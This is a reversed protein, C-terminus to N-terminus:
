QRQGQQCPQCTHRCHPKISSKVLSPIVEILSNLFYIYFFSCEAVGFCMGEASPILQQQQQQQGSELGKDSRDLFHVLKFLVLIIFFLFMYSIDIYFINYLAKFM